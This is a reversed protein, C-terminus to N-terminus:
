IKSTSKRLAIEYSEKPVTIKYKSVYTGNEVLKHKASDLEIKDTKLLDFWHQGSKEAM